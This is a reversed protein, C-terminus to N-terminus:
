EGGLTWDDQGTAFVNRSDGSVIVPFDFVTAVGDHDKDFPPCYPDTQDFSSCHEMMTPRM